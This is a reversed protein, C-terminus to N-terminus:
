TRLFLWAAEMIKEPKLDNMCRFHKQPCKKSGHLSCPRCYLEGIDVTAAKPSYPAFGFSQVTPGFIAIVPTGVAAAIHAPASDNSIVLKAKSIIAASQLLDTQGAMNIPARVSKKELTDLIDYESQSGLLVVPFKFEEYLLDILEPYHAYRKTPWISGPAVVIFDGEIGNKSLKKVAFEELESDIFLKPRYKGSSNDIEVLDLCREVEHKDTRYKVKKTYFIKAASNDFGIREPIGALYPLLASRLHRQVIIAKDCGRIQRSVEWLGGPGGQDGYKDFSVVNDIYPNGKLLCVAEPRVVATTQIGPHLDNLAEFIPLSLIVDGPFATQIIAIRM